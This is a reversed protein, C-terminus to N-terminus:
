YHHETVLSKPHPWFSRPLSRIMARGWRYDSVSTKDFNSGLKSGLNRFDTRCLERPASTLAVPRDARNASRTSSFATPKLHEKARDATELKTRTYTWRSV